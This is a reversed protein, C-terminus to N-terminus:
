ARLSSDSSEIIHRHPYHREGLGGQLRADPYDRPQM